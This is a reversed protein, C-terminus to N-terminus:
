GMLPAMAASDAYEDIRAIRDAEVRVVICSPVRVEDGKPGTCALVHQQVYGHETAEIRVDRYELDSLRSLIAVVKVAQKKVLERQDVNRWVRIDNAYLRDVGEVDGRTVSEILRKAVEVNPHTDRM